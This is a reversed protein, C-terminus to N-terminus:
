PTAWARLRSGTCFPRIPPPELLLHVPEGGEAPSGVPPHRNRPHIGKLPVGSADYLLGEAQFGPGAGSFGPDIVAEVRRGAWEEPVRGTLRFWSTSWPKGWATKTTFPAYEARLAQDVPVPEGPVHWASLVLLVREAYPAPRVFQGMARELRAEV